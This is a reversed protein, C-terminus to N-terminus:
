FRFTLKLGAAKPSRSAGAPMPTFHPEMKLGLEEGVDFDMLHADVSADLINLMYLAATLIYTIELNRRYYEMARRLNDDSHNPFGDVTNPNGDVRAVYAQRWVQYETNNFDIFYALTGFGAYIIPVKWYKGNYIQGLGPLTASLMAARTPSPPEEKLPTIAVQGSNNNGMNQGRVPNASVALLLVGLAMVAVRFVNCKAKNRRNSAVKKHSLFEFM